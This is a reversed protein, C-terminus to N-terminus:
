RLRRRVGRRDAARPVGHLRPVVRGGAAARGGAGARRRVRKGAEAAVKAIKGEVRTVGRAEAYARLFAAYLGADFHYAYSFTSFVSRPDNPPRDFRGLYAAAETLSYASLPTTDGQTRARLWQQHFPTMGFDDGYRGFPHFYRHGPRLWDAFEIGLKFTGQTARVFAAEDIGLIRNFAQIPPITAEGVGVTGIEESEVVTIRCGTGVLAASLVAAAMWGASGGGAVVISRIARSGTMRGVAGPLLPLHLDRSRADEGGRARDGCPAAGHWRASLRGAVPRRDSRVPAAAGQQWAFISVWSPEQYSEETYLPVRGGAEWLAIKHALTEPVTAARCQAWMAEPRRSRCYHLILFDRIREYENATVRNYEDILVPDFSM